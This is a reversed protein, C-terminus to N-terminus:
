FAIRVQVPRHLRHRPNLIATLLHGRLIAVEKSRLSHHPLLAKFVQRPLLNLLSASTLLPLTLLTTLAHM